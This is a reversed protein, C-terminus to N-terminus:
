APVCAKLVAYNEAVKESKPEPAADLLAAVVPHRQPAASTPSTIGMEALLTLWAAEITAMNQLVVKDHRCTLWSLAESLLDAEVALGTVFLAEITDSFESDRQRYTKIACSSKLREVEATDDRAIADMAAIIRQRPSLAEYILGHIKM